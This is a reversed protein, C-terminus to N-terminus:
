ENLDFLFDYSDWEAAMIAAIDAPDAPEAELDFEIAFQPYNEGDVLAAGYIRYATGGGTLKVGTFVVDEVELMHIGDAKEAETFFHEM